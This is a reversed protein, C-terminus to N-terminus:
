VMPVFLRSEQRALLEETKPDDMRPPELRFRCRDRVLALNIVGWVGDEAFAQHVTDRFTFRTPVMTDP